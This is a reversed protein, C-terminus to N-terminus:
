PPFKSLIPPLFLSCCLLLLLSWYGVKLFLSLLWFFTILSIFCKFLVVPWNSSVSIFLASSVNKELICHINKLYAVYYVPFCTKIFELLSVDCLTMEPWLSIFTSLWLVFYGPFFELYTSTLCCIWVLSNFFFIVPSYPFYMSVFQFWFVNYWLM